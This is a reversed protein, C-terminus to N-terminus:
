REETATGGDVSARLEGTRGRLQVAVHSMQTVGALRKGALWVVDVRREVAAVSRRLGELLGTVAALVVVGGVLTLQWRPDRAGRNM